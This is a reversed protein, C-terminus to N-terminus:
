LVIGLAAATDKGVEGDPTLDNANQFAIVANLTNVGFIDDVGNTDFGADTLAQQIEGVKPSNMMPMM